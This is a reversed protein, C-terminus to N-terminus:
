SAYPQEYHSVRSAAHVTQLRERLNIKVCKQPSNWDIVNLVARGDLLFALSTMHWITVMKSNVSNEDARIAHSVHYWVRDEHYPHTEEAKIISLSKYHVYRSVVDTSLRVQCPIAGKRRITIRQKCCRIIEDDDTQIISPICSSM